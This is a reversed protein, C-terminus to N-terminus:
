LDFLKDYLTSPNGAFIQQSNIPTNIQMRFGNKVNDLEVDSAHNKSNLTDSM